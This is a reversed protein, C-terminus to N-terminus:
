SVTARVKFGQCSLDITCSRGDSLTVEAKVSTQTNEIFRYEIVGFTQQALAGKFEWLLSPENPELKAFSTWRRKSIGEAQDM